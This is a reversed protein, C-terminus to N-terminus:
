AETEQPNNISPKTSRSAPEAIQHQQMWDAVHENVHLETDAPHTEGAHTHERLLKVRTEM